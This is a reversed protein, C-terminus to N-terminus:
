IRTRERRRAGYQFPPPGLQLIQFAALAVPIPPEHRIQGEIRVDTGWLTGIQDCYHRVTELLGGEEVVSRRLDVISARLEKIADDIADRATEIVARAERTRGASLFALANGAGYAAAALSQLSSDHIDMCTFAVLPGPRTVPRITYATSVPWSPKMGPQVTDAV